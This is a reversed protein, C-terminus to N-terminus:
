APSREGPGGNRYHSYLLAFITSIVVVACGIWLVPDFLNAAYTTVLQYLGKGSIGIREFRDTYRAFLSMVIFFIGSATLAYIIYRWTRYKRRRIRSLFVIVIIIFLICVAVLLPVLRQVRAITASLQASFPVGVSKRYAETSIDALYLLAEDIEPSLEMGQETVYSHLKEYLRERFGELNAGPLDPEYLREAELFIDARIEDDGVMNEFFSPDFGSSMGYSVLTDDLDRKIEATYGSADVQELLFSPRLVTLQAILVLALVIFALTLFFSLIMSVADRAARAGTGGNQEREM